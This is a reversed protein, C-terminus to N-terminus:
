SLVPRGFDVVHAGLGRVEVHDAIVVLRHDRAADAGADYRVGVETLDLPGRGDAVAVVVAQLGAKGPVHRRPEFKAGGKSVRAAEVVRRLQVGTRGAICG